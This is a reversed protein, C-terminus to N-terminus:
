SPSTEVLRKLRRLNRRWIARLVLRGGVAEGARGGLYWPFDLDESWTFRTREGGALGQVHMVGSGTVVGVHEVGMAGDTAVRGDGADVAPVWETIHMEDTLRIPGVKTDCEFRTGVGRTRESVFRIATADAMWDVHDEIPEIVEWVRAPSADIDISVTVDSM